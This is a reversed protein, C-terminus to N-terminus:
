SLKNLDLESHITIVHSSDNKRVHIKAYRVWVYSYQKDKAISKVENLLKKNQPTLHDNVYVRRVDSSYGLDSASIKKMARAAAVFDEKVYRNVFSLLITKDKSNYTPIRSIYNIQTKPVQYSIYEGLKDIVIFLNENNKMPVGKIEVNNMRTWQDQNYFQSKISELSTSAAQTENIATELVSVRDGLGKLKTSFEDIRNSTFECTNRVEQLDSKLERIDASLVPLCGITRTVDNLKNM